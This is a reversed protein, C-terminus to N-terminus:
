RKERLKKLYRLLKEYAKINKKLDAIRKEAWPEVEAIAEERTEFVQGGFAFGYHTIYKRNREDKELTLGLRSDTFDWKFKEGKM